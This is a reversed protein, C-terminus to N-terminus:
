TLPLPIRFKSMESSANLRLGKMTMWCPWNTMFSKCMWRPNIWKWLAPTSWMMPSCSAESLGMRTKIAEMARRARSTSLGVDDGYVMATRRDLRQNGTYGIFRLRVNGKDAVAAMGSKLRDIFGDPIVPKGDKFYIPKIDGDPPNYVREVTEAASAEPCIQPTDPLDEMPDDYWFEVEVRRNLARGKESSNSAVPFTAGKGTSAIAETPLHMADQVALAVRRAIAKSIGVKDGYIREDRGNLQTDDTFGIFRMQVHSKDKLNQLAQQLHALFQPTIEVEGDEYHLPPVLNKLVARRSHGEKYHLMCMTEVRCVKIRRSQQELDVKKDVTEESVEDYWVEVEVRRNQARGAETKNSAVPKTDGMGEYSIAEPPLHLAQQFYEAATGARERSLAMNDGYKKRAAGFLKTNDTHGVFHLRVNVRDRMKALIERLKAIYEDPIDAEGSAFHIPPVVNTLKKTVFHQKTVKKVEVKNQQNKSYISADQKWPTLRLDSDLQKEVNSGLTPTEYITGGTATNSFLSSDAVAPTAV